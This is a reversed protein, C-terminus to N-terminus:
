GKNEKYPINTFIYRMIITYYSNKLLTKSHEKNENIEYILIHSQKLQM